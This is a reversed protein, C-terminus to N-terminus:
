SRITTRRGGPPYEPPARTGAPRPRTPSRRERSGGRATGSGRCTPARPSPELVTDVGAPDAASLARSAAVQQKAHEINKVGIRLGSGDPPVSVSDLENGFEGRARLVRERAERLTQRTYKAQQIRALNIDIGPDVAKVAALFRKAKSRDTLYINVTHTGANLEVGAYIDAQGARGAEGAANALARLPDLLKAQEAPAM